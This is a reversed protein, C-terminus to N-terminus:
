GNAELQLLRHKIDVWRGSRHGAFGGKGHAAVVRHCPILLLAVWGISTELASDFSTAMIGGM